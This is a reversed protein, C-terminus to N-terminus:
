LARAERAITELARGTLWDHCTQGQREGIGGERCPRWGNAASVTARAVHGNFPSRRTGTRKYGPGCLSRFRADLPESSFSAIVAGM